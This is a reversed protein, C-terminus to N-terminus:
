ASRRHGDPMIANARLAAEGLRLMTPSLYRSRMGIRGAGYTALRGSTLLSPRALRGNGVAREWETPSKSNDSVGTEKPSM